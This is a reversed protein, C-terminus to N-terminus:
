QNILKNFETESIISVDLKEAKQKKSPGMKEGAVLYDLKGSISSVVKGGNKKIIEKLEDRGYNEFVGSVVFTKHQLIDNEVQYISEDIEFILGSKKLRGIEAINDPQQFFFVVSKAIREGIEPVEILEEYTAHLIADINKFYHALKEAVTRGVYRIGIGFLVNEFPSIKSAEIGSLLNRTSLDKFGDLDIVNEYTLDFLDAPSSVLHCEYLQSITREGLSDINLAKRQIFHEIRGKIQPACGNINSCYHVAEGEKRLLETQCEPCKTVFHIPTSSSTRQTIDVGTVKPIIEGGKEVFVFDGVRLDLREIENANHLSARKVTTGALLVPELEAVPTIAGTRGVQYTVNNLKTVANEAKFKFSIAWRPNKATFGLKKQQSISNVKIVIGDTELPLEHRKEEWDTIFNIVENINKCKRYTPSINFGMENMSELAAEHTPTTLEDGLLSYLYCDLKRKAVASSDQMKLSGSATNRANAYLMEGIDEREKNIQNFVEKPMFVEGRVEFQPSIPHNIRLPITRITKVNNTVDDGRNGDGRTVARTLLGNEYTLSIAVGDFKLECLYEYDDSDLGKQVRTDFEELEEKSYTNGLSLMAFKHTVTEFEKTIAGGVRQTPSNPSKLEPFQSELAILKALLQDFDYDSIESTSKQYYLHNYHDIQKTLGEIINKAEELQM